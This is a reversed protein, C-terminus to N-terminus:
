APARKGPTRARAIVAELHRALLEYVAYEQRRGDEAFLRICTMHLYSRLLSRLPTLLEGRQEASRLGGTAVCRRGRWRELIALVAAMEEDEPSGSLVAALEKRLGRFREGLARRTFTSAGMEQAYDAAAEQCFRLRDGADLGFDEMWAQMAAAAALWRRGTNEPALAAIVEASQESDIWFLDEALEIGRDGGYREVEREYTDLQTRWLTAARPSGDLAERLAPLCRGLLAGPEGWLRLRLHPEPDQYRLFFWGQCAGGELLRRLVPLLDECLLEDQQSEAGYLKLYLWGSGPGFSRQGRLLTENSGAGSTVPSSLRERRLFPVVLEMAYGGEPGEAALAEATPFIEELRV